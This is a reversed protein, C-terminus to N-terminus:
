LTIGNERLSDAFAAVVGHYLYGNRDFVVESIGNQKLSEAFVKAIEKANDKNNGFGLKKGDVSALTVGNQDDIAQAYLYRNSRFVSVRPKSAIGFISGRVRLKRKARLKKKQELVKNTM